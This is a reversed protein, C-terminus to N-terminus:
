SGGEEAKRAAAEKDTCLYVLPVEVWGARFPLAINAAFCTCDGALETAQYVELRTPAIKMKSKAKLFARQAKTLKLVMGSKFHRQVQDAQPKTLELEVADGGAYRGEKLPFGDALLVASSLSIGTAFAMQLLRMIM